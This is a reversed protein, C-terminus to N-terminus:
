PNCTKCPRRGTQEASDSSAFTVAKAHDMRKVHPCTSRHYVKSSKAAIYQADAAATEPGKTTTQSQSVEIVKQALKKEVLLDCLNQGDVEIEAVLCFREGRQINKLLVQKPKSNKSLLLDNLFMLLKLNSKADAATKLGDIRVPINEGIVAPFEAIDCYINVHEDLRHVTTVNANGFSQVPEPISSEVATGIIALTIIITTALKVLINNEKM